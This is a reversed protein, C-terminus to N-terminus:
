PLWAAEVLELARGARSEARRGVAEQVGQKHVIFQRKKKKRRYVRQWERQLCHSSQPKGYTAKGAAGAAAWASLQLRGSAGRGKEAAVAEQQSLCGPM